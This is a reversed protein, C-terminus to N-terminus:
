AVCKAFFDVFFNVSCETSTNTTFDDVVVFELIRSGFLQIRGSLAPEKHGAREENPDMQGRFSIPPLNM